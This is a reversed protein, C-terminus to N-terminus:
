KEVRSARDQQSHPALIMAVVVARGHAKILNKPDGCLPRPIAAPQSGQSAQRIETL